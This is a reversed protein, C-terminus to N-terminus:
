CSDTDNACHKEERKCANDHPMSLMLAKGNHNEGVASDAHEAIEIHGVHAVEIGELNVERRQQEGDAADHGELSVVVEVEHAHDEGQGCVGVEGQTELVVGVLDLEAHDLSEGHLAPALLGEVLSLLYSELDNGHAENAQLHEKGDNAGVVFLLQAEEEQSEVDYSENLEEQLGAECDVHGLRVENANAQGGHADEGEEGLLQAQECLQCAGDEDEVGDQAGGDEDSEVLFVNVLLQANVFLVLFHLM